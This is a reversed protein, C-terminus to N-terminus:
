SSGPPCIQTPLERQLYLQAEETTLTRNALACARAQWDQLGSSWWIIQGDRGGSVLFAGDPHYALTNVWDTHGKLPQGIPRLTASDWLIITGDGSASALTRGDPSFVARMVWNSHGRLPDGVTQGTHVDWLRLTTDRSASALLQGDPSFSLDLLGDTHGRLPDGLATGTQLDWLRLTTDRSASAMIAGDPSFALSIIRDTHGILPNGLREGTSTDWLVIYGDNDGTALIHGSPSYALSFLSDDAELTFLPEYSTMDWIRATGDLSASALQNEAPNFTLGTVSATHGTLVETDITDQWLRIAFDGDLGGASAMWTGDPSFALSLIQEPQTIQTLILAPQAQWDWVQLTNTAGGTVMYSNEPSFAVSWVPSQSINILAQLPRASATDWLFIRSDVGGSIMQQGSSDFDVDRIWDTHGRLVAAQGTSLDWLRVTNDASGSALTDGQPSFALALVWNTHGELQQSSSEPLHWLQITGDASGSALTEGDPHFAVSYVAASLQLPEGTSQGSEIDWLRITGDASGSALTRGDPSIAISYVAQTHGELNLATGEQRDWLVLTGDEAASALIHGDPSFALTNIWATHLTLPEGLPQFTHADWLRVTRDRSASAILAGDPSYAVARVWDAHGNLFSVLQPQAQLATVLSHRAEFTDATHLAELSLLLPLDIRNLQTLASAALERSKSIRAENDARDREAVATAQAVVADQRAVETKDRQDVAYIALSTAVLAVIVLGTIFLQRRRLIRQRLRISQQIYAAEDQSLTVSTHQTLTEFQALRAGMALFSADRQAKLWDATMNSLQRQLRLDDRNENLWNQLQEWRRILAEHAIEVTPTRTAPDRDFALLRYHAFRDIVTQITIRDTNLTFLESQLVRRRTDETHDGLAVLRLFLQKAVGREDPTLQEYIEDARRALAGSIGGSARYARLTLKKGERKEHMETLAYQLLPLAGPQQGVDEIILDSLGDELSLGARQAPQSMARELENATLPLVVETNAQILEGFGPYLLPRDYFDARLTIIIRLRSAPTTVAHHLLSLFHARTQEDETLTFVEEFQDIVLVLEGSDLPLVQELIPSLSHQDTHLTQFLGSDGRAAVRLVAAELKKVPEEGPTMEVIYWHTSSAHTEHRIAPLLGAKIVSSKGSGSPGVVALFRGNQPSEPETLREVLREILSERGHFDAADAEQFPRLGKYPNIPANILKDITDLNLILTQPRELTKGTAPQGGTEMVKYQSEAVVRRFHDAMELVTPYRLDPDKSTARWIVLDLTEPLDPHFKRLSPLPSNLQYQLLKLIDQEQFPHFGTLAEYLVVGLSYIDTQPTIKARMIQEPSIYAPSGHITEKNASAALDIGLNLDKALGFDSLYANNDEDLLINAPKIDQHVISNRHATTLAGTLQDLLKVVAGPEWAGHKISDLLSGGRLWRMVLYAGQPDRWYDYLPVIHLHELRAILQAEAEFSRIFYPDNAFIPLIVKIVVDREILPQYARYVEGFGGKGIRERLHYGKIVQGSNDPM